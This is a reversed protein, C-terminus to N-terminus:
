FRAGLGTLMLRARGIVELSENLVEAFIVGVQGDKGDRSWALQESRCRQAASELEHLLREAQGKDQQRVALKLEGMLGQVITISRPLEVAAKDEYTRKDSV